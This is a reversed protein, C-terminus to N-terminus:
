WRMDARYLGSFLMLKIYGTFGTYDRGTTRSMSPNEELFVYTAGFSVDVCKVTKLVM